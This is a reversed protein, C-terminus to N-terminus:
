VFGKAKMIIKQFYKKKLYKQGNKKFVIKNLKRDIQKLNIITNDKIGHSRAGSFEDWINLCM